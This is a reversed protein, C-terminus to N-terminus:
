KLRSQEGLSGREQMIEELHNTALIRRVAGQLVSTLQNNLESFSAVRQAATEANDVRFFAVIDVMFPLRASDYAEYNDLTVKFISEPFQSVTVGLKPVWEPWAYYTNGAEKGRGYPTSTASSQVIHVMNTPVVRRLTILIYLFTCALIVVVIIGVISAIGAFSFDM